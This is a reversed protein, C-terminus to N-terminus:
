LYAIRTACMMLICSTWYFRCHGQLIAQTPISSTTDIPSPTTPSSTAFSEHLITGIIERTALLPWLDKHLHQKVHILVLPTDSNQYQGKRPHYVRLGTSVINSVILHRRSTM